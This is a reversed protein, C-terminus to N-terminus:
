VTLMHNWIILDRPSERPRKFIFDSKGDLSDGNEERKKWM